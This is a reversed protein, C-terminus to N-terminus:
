RGALRAVVPAFAGSASEPVTVYSIGYSDRRRELEDCIADVPGILVHPHRALQEAPLGFAASLPALADDIRETVSTFYAAIELELRAFRDGAAERVWDIKTATHDATSSGVGLPGIKGSSNNFNISVIDAKAGALRLVKPSGGGIMIPPGGPQVPKPVAEFGEAFVGAQDFKVEGEAFCAHLLDVVAALHEIREGATAFPIGMAEYEGALWGAGLGAEIRGESLLDLTALEKALVVPHHYDVCLVRCGIRLTTTAEAAVAMAPVAAISQVPHNTAKIAPGPGIYHDALHLTSYGLDETRQATARWAAANDTAYSQVAFRFPTPTASKDVTM